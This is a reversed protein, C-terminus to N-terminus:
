SQKNHNGYTLYNIFYSIIQKNIASIEIKDVLKNEIILKM